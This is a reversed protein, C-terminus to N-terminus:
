VARITRSRMTGTVPYSLASCPSADDRPRVLRLIDVAVTGDHKRALGPGGVLSLVGLLTLSAIQFRVKVALSM